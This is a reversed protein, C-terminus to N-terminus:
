AILCQRYTDCILKKLGITFILGIKEMELQAVHDLKTVIMFFLLRFEYDLKM